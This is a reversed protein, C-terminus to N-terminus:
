RVRSREDIVNTHLRRTPEFPHQRAGTEKVTQQRPKRGRGPGTRRPPATEDKNRGTASMTGGARDAPGRSFAATSGPLGTGRNRVPAIGHKGALRSRVRRPQESRPLEARRPLAHVGRLEGGTGTGACESRTTSCRWKAGARPVGAASRRVTSKRPRHRGPGGAERRRQQGLWLDASQPFRPGRALAHVALVRDSSRGTSRRRGHWRSREPLCRRVRQVLLALVGLMAAVSARCTRQRGRRAYAATSM